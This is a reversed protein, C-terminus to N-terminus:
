IRNRQPPRSRPPSPRQHAADHESAISRRGLLRLALNRGGRLFPYLLKSARPSSFIARNLLGFVGASDAVLGLVHLAEAGHHLSGKWNLVMGEDIDHGKAAPARVLEPAQRADILRFSPSLKRIAVLAVYRSCFPCDGDYLLYDTTPTTRM